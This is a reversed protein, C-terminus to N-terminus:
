NIDSLLTNMILKSNSADLDKIKSRSKKTGLLKSKRIKGEDFEEEFSNHRSVDPTMSIKNQNFDLNLENAMNQARNQIPLSSRKNNLRMAMMRSKYQAREEEDQEYGDRHEHSGQKINDFSQKNARTSGEQLSNNGSPIRNDNRSQKRSFINSNSQQMTGSSIDKSNRHSDM